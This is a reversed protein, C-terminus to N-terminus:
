AFCFDPLTQTASKSRLSFSLCLFLVRRQYLVGLVSSSSPLGPRSLVPILFTSPASLRCRTWVHIDGECITLPIVLAIWLLHSSSPLQWFLGSCLRMSILPVAFMPSMTPSASCMVLPITPVALCSFFDSVKADTGHGKGKSVCEATGSDENEGNHVHKMARPAPTGEKERAEAEDTKSASHRARTGLEGDARSTEDATSPTTSVAEM